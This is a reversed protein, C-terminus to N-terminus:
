YRWYPDQFQSSLRASRAGRCQLQCRRDVPVSRAKSRYPYGRKRLCRSSACQPPAPFELPRARKDMARRNEVITPAGPFDLPPSRVRASNSGTSIDSLDLAKDMPHYILKMQQLAFRSFISRFFVEGIIEFPVTTQVPANCICFSM